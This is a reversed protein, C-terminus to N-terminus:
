ARNTNQPWFHEGWCRSYEWCNFSIPLSQKLGSTRPGDVQWCLDWYPQHQDRCLRVRSVATTIGCKWSVLSRITGFTQSTRTDFEVVMFLRDPEVYPLPRFLMADVVSFISTNVGVGLAITMMAVATFGTNKRLLRAGFRLDQMLGEM